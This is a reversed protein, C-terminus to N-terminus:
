LWPLHILFKMSIICIIEITRDLRVHTRTQLTEQDEMWEPSACARPQRSTEHFSQRNIISLLAFKLEGHIGGRLDGCCNHFRVVRDERCMKRKIMGITSKHHVILGNVVDTPLVQVDFPGRVGVQVSEDTLHRWWNCGREPKFTPSHLVFISHTM